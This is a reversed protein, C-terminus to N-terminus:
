DNCDDNKGGNDDENNGQWLFYFIRIKISFWHKFFGLPFGNNNDNNYLFEPKEHGRSSRRTTEQCRTMLPRHIMTIELTVKIEMNMMVMVMAM